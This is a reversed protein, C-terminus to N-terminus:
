ETVVKCNLSFQKLKVQSLVIQKSQQLWVGKFRKSHNLRSIFTSLTQDDLSIGVITLTDGKKQLSKFWIKEPVQLSLEEIVKIASLSKRNLKNIIGIKKELEKREKKLLHIEGVRKALVRNENKKQMVQLRLDKIKGSINIHLYVGILITLLVMLISVSIDLRRQERKKEERIPLLNIKIM